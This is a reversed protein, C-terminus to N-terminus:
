SWWSGSVPRPTMPNKRKKRMTKLIRRMRPSKKQFHCCRITWHSRWCCSKLYWVTESLNLFTHYHEYKYGKHLTKLSKMFRSEKICKAERLYVTDEKLIQFYTWKQGNHNAWLQTTRSLCLIIFKISSLNYISGGERDTHFYVSRTQANHNYNSTLVSLNHCSDTLKLWELATM